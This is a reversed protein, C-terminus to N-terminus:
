KNEDVISFVFLLLFRNLTLLLSVLVVDIVANFLKWVSGQYKWQQYKRQVFSIPQPFIEVLLFWSVTTNMGLDPIM